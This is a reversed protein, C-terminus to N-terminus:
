YYIHCFPYLKRLVVLIAEIYDTTTDAQALYVNSEIEKVIADISKPTLKECNYTLALVAFKRALCKDIIGGTIGECLKKLDALDRMAVPDTYFVSLPNPERKYVTLKKGSQISM